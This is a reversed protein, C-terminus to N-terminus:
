DGAVRSSTWINTYTWCWLFCWIGLYLYKTLTITRHGTTESEVRFINGNWVMWHRSILYSQGSSSDAVISWKTMLYYVCKVSPQPWHSTGTLVHSPDFYNDRFQTWVFTEFIKRHCKIGCFISYLDWWIRFSLNDEDRWATTKTCYIIVGSIM